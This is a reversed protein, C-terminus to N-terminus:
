SDSLRKKWYGTQRSAHAYAIIEIAGRNERFVITYPFKRLLAARTGDTDLPWQHPKAAIDRLKAKIAAVFRSAARPDRKEYWDAADQLEDAAAPTHRISYRAM